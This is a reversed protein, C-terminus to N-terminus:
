NCRFKCLLYVLFEFFYIIITWVIPGILLGLIGKPIYFWYSSNSPIFALIDFDFFCLFCYYIVGSSVFLAITFWGFSYTKGRRRQVSQLQEEHNMKNSEVETNIHRENLKNEIINNNKNVWMIRPNLISNFSKVKLRFRELNNLKIAEVALFFTGLLELVNIINQM